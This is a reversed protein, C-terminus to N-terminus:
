PQEYFTSSIRAGTSVMALVGSPETDYVRCSARMETSHCPAHCSPPCEWPIESACVQMESFVILDDATLLEILTQKDLGACVLCTTNACLGLRQFPSLTALIM